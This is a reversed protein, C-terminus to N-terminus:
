YTFLCRSLIPGCIDTDPLCGNHMNMKQRKTKRKERKTYQYQSLLWQTHADSMSTDRADSRDEGQMKKYPTDPTALEVPAVFIEKEV